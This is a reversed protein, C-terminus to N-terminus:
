SFKAFSLLAGGGRAAMSMTNATVLMIAFAVAM